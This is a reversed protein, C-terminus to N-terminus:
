HFLDMSIYYMAIQDINVGRYEKSFTKSKPWFNLFLNLIQFFFSEIIKYFENLRIWQHMVDFM